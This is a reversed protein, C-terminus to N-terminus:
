VYGRKLYSNIYLRVLFCCFFLLFLMLLSVYVDADLNRLFSQVTATKSTGTEGVLVVPRHIGVMLSVLWDSRVTDVTPVLIENYKMEPIHTYQPVVSVWPVWKNKESDFYFEYLTPQSTPIEGPGVSIGEAANSPLTSLRKVFSDFKVRGDELLGAGVSWILSTIFIGETIDTGLFTNSEASPLLANLMM